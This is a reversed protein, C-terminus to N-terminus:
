RRPPEGLGLQLIRIVEGLEDVCSVLRPAVPQCLTDLRGQGIVARRAPDIALVATDWYASAGDRQPNVEPSWDEDAVGMLLWVVGGGGLAGM